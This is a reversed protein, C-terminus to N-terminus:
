FPTNKKNNFSEIAEKLEEEDEKSLDKQDVQIRIVTKGKEDRGLIVGEVFEFDGGGELIVGVSDDEIPSDVDFIHYSKIPREIKKTLFEVIKGEEWEGIEVPIIIYHGTKSHIDVSINGLVFGKCGKAPSKLMFALPLPKGELFFAFEEICPADEHPYKIFLDSVGLQSPDFAIYSGIPLYFKPKDRALKLVAESLKNLRDKNEENM